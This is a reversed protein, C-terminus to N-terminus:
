RMPELGARCVAPTASESGRFAASLLRCPAMVDLPSAATHMRARSDGEQPRGGFQPSTTRRRLARDVLAAIILKGLLFAKATRGGSKLENLGILSKCRRFFLEIRWRLRYTYRVQEDPLESEPVTTLLMVYGALRRALETVSKKQKKSARQKLRVRAQAAKEPPLKSMVLRAQVPPKDGYPVRVPISSIGRDPLDLIQAVELSDQLDYLKISQLYVRVLSYAGTSQVHHIDRAHGLGQDALM